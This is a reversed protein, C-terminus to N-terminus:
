SSVTLVFPNISPEPLHSLPKLLAQPLGLATFESGSIVVHAWMTGLAGSEASALLHPFSNVGIGDIM